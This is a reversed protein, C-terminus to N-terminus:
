RVAGAAMAGFFALLAELEGARLVDRYAPMDRIGAVIRVTTEEPSMRLLVNTLDPGYRGGHGLAQHCFQCGRAHFVLAGEAASAELGALREAPIPATDFDPVWHPRTGLGILSGFLVAGGLVVLVAWPRRAPHREGGRAVFPLVLLVAVVVLPLYVMTFDEWGRPKLWILTYYWRLFWDPRPDAAVASPDPLPGPGKPGLLAALVFVVLLVGTAFVAERWAAFPWYPRGAEKLARYEERYTDPEIARGARPPESIGHHFVLWVHLSVTLVILAPLVFVHLAYFRSLTSGGVTDGALLFEALGGGLLPVRAAFQAAVVVTWVGNEDWRLLQGTFAMLGTLLLLVVGTLWNVERPFKYSGTLFVRSMHLAVLVLMASAGFFHLARLFGGMWTQETIFRLSAHASAPSPIYKTALAVGTVLQLLFAALIGNGLVYLWGARGTNARPVKHSRFASLVPALGLRDHLWARARRLARM